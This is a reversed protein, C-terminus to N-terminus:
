SITERLNIRLVIQQIPTAPIKRPDLGLEGIIDFISIKGETVAVMTESIYIRKTTYAQKLESSDVVLLGIECQQIEIPYILCIIAIRGKIYTQLLSLFFIRPVKNVIVERM